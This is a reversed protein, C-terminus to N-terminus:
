IVALRYALFVSPALLCFEDLADGVDCVSCDRVVFSNIKAKDICVSGVGVIEIAVCYRPSEVKSWITRRWDSCLEPLSNKIRKYVRNYISTLLQFAWIQDQNDGISARLAFGFILETGRYQFTAFEKCCITVSFITLLSEIIKLTNLLFGCRIDM